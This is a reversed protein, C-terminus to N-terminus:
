RTLISDLLLDAMERVADAQGELKMRMQAGEWCSLFIRALKEASLDTRIEGAQQGETLLVALRQEWRDAAQQLAQQCQESQNGIEASLSGILCGSQCNRAVCRDISKDLIMRLTDLPGLQNAQGEEICQDWDLLMQQGYERVVESVFAEKSSFYNYFSGKPVQMVDLVQKIGTGHYGAVSLHEIGTQILAARTQEGSNLGAM